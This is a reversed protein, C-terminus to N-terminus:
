RGRPRRPRRVGMGSRHPAGQRGLRCLRRLGRLCRPRRPPGQPGKCLEATRRPPALLHRPVWRWWNRYDRTDVPGRTMHFVLSGPLLEHPAADAYVAPDLPREAVTVYGTAAVFAAFQRNTVTTEDMEFTAVRVRRAPAEESYHRDSGM